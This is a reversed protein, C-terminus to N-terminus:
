PEDAASSAIATGLRGAWDLADRLRVVEGIVVIAPPRIRAAVRSIEGLTSVLVSQDPTTARSVVAVPEDSRRGGALLREAIKPLHRSAMYLVLVPSGRAIADWDLAGPVGGESDHGTLFTVASNVARHTVPIGAYALGGIGATIGPVIRFPIEAEALALAEEGGRGFVCPDGGKLRLVRNGERALRVLRASIDPQSASPRGGRKGAHDLAAGARALGLIRRDVLADYVVIDARALAHLALASLLGPDGPGAGVLWVSGPNFDPLGLLGSDIM